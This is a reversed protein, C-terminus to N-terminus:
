SGSQRPLPRVDSCRMRTDLAGDGLHSRSPTTRDKESRVRKGTISGPLLLDLALRHRDRRHYRLTGDM